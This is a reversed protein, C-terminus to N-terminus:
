STRACLYQSDTPACGDCVTPRRSPWAPTIGFGGGGCDSLVCARPGLFGSLNLFCHRRRRPRQM